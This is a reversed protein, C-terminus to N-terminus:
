KDRGFCVSYMAVFKGKEIEDMVFVGQWERLLRELQDQVEPELNDADCFLESLLQVTSQTKPLEIILSLILSYLESDVSLYRSYALLNTTWQLTVRCHSIWDADCVDQGQM